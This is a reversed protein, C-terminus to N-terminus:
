YILKFECRYIRGVLDWIRFRIFEWQTIRIEDLIKHKLIGFVWTEFKSQGSFKDISQFAALLADQVRDEAISEDELQLRAFALLRPRVAELRAEFENAQM